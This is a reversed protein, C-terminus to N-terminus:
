RRHIRQCWSWVVGSFVPFSLAAVDIRPVAIIGDALRGRAAYRFIQTTLQFIQGALLSDSQGDFFGIVNSGM